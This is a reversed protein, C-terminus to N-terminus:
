FIKSQILMIKSRIKNNITTKPLDPIKKVGAMEVVGFKIPQVRFSFKEEILIM